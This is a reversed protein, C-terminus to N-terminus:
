WPFLLFHMGNQAAFTMIIGLNASHLLWVPRSCQCSFYLCVAHRKASTFYLPKKKRVILVNPEWSLFVSKKLRLFFWSAASCVWISQTGQVSSSTIKSTKLSLYSMCYDLHLAKVHKARLVHFNVSQFTGALKCCSFLSLHELNGSVKWSTTKSTKLCDHSM